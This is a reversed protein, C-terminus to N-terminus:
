TPVEFLHEKIKNTILKKDAINCCYMKYIHVLDGLEVETKTNSGLQNEEESKIRDKGSGVRGYMGLLFSSYVAPNSGRVERATTRNADELGHRM